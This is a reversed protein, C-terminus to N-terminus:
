GLRKQADWMLVGFVRSGTPFAHITDSLVSVPIGQRIALTAEHIIDAAGPCAAFAGILVKRERDVTVTIHGESGELAQGRASQAFDTSVEFADFGGGHAEEETLGVAATEPETFTAKPVTAMNAIAKSGLAARAAVRGQYDAVHTFQLGGAVDGAVFIHDGVRMQGDPQVVGREDLVVGANEIGISRVDSPRRGVAVLLEAGSATTGDSLHVVKKGDAVSVKQAKVGLRLDIGERKLRDAVVMSSKPHDRALIRDNGEVVSTKTGFRAYVQALEIGVPGGGLVVISTPLIRLSTAQRNTWYGAEVLGEIAPIVPVSGTSVIINTAALLETSGDREVQVTGKDTIKATGRVLVGGADKLRQVHHSDDPYDLGERAIIWDRRKSARDWPYDAGLAHLNASNILSKSPICAWFGCEGGLLDREVLAVSAGSEAALSAAAEGGAGGGIVVLDYRASM